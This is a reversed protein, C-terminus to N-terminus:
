KKLNKNCDILFHKEDSIENCTTCLRLEILINKHRSTEIELLHERFTLLEKKKHCYKPAILINTQFIKNRNRLLPRV